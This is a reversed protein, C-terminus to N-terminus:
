LSLPFFKLYWKSRSNQIQFIEAKSNAFGVNTVTRHFGITFSKQIPVKFTMLPYNLDKPLVKDNDNSCSSNDGTITRAKKADYLGCLIKIYDDKFTEYM